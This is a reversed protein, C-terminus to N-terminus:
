GERALALRYQEALEGRSVEYILAEFAARDLGAQTLIEDAKGPEAEIKKALGAAKVVREDLVAEVPEAAGGDDKTDATLDKTDKTDKTDGTKPEGKKKADAISKDDKKADKSVKGDGQQGCAGLALALLSTWLIKRM